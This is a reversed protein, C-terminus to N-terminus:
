WCCFTRSLGFNWRLRSYIRIFRAVAYKGHLQLSSGGAADNVLLWLISYWYIQLEKFGDKDIRFTYVHMFGYPQPHYLPFSRSQLKGMTDINNWRRRYNCISLSKQARMWNCVRQILRAVSVLIWISWSCDYPSLTWTLELALSTPSGWYGLM